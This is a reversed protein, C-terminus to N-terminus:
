RVADLFGRLRKTRVGDAWAVLREKDFYMFERQGGSPNLAEWAKRPKANLDRLHRNAEYALIDAAQLPPYTKKDAFTMTMQRHPHRDRVYNFASLAMGQYDNVEHVISVAQGDDNRDMIRLLSMIVWQFCPLYPVPGIMEALEPHTIQAERYDELRIGVTVSFLGKASGIVPLLNKVYENKREVSWGSFEGRLESCDTAHFVEIPHKQKNWRPDM